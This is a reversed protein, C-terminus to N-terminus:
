TFQSVTSYLHGKDNIINKEGLHMYWGIIVYDNPCFSATKFM